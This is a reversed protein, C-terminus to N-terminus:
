GLAPTASPDDGNPIPRTLRPAPRGPRRSGHAPRDRGPARRPRQRAAPVGPATPPRRPRPRHGNRHVVSRADAAPCPPRRRHQARLNARRGFESVLWFSSGVRRGGVPTRRALGSRRGVTEIVAQGPPVPALRRLVPNLLHRQFGIVVPRRDGRASRSAARRLLLVTVRRHIPLLVTWVPRAPWRHHHVRSTLTVTSPGVSLVLEATLLVSRAELRITDGATSIISWGLVHDPSPYPGLRLGLVARWGLLLSRRVVGPADEYVARAWTEASRRGGDGTGVRFTEEYGLGLDTV